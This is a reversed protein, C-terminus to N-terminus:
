GHCPSRPYQLDIGDALFDDPFIRTFAGSSGLHESAIWKWAIAGGPEIEYIVDNLVQPQSFGPVPHLLNALILSNGNPLRRWDHHQDAAGGPVKDGGWEWVTKGDWDVEGITKNIEPIARGPVLGTGSADARALTVLVHGRNGGALAPDLAVSPFGEVELGTNL